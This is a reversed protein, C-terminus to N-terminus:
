PGSGLGSLLRKLQARQRPQRLIMLAIDPGGAAQLRAYLALSDAMRGLRACCAAAGLLAPGFGDLVTAAEMLLPDALAFDDDLLHCLGLGTVAYPRVAMDPNIALASRFCSGARATDGGALVAWGLWFHVYPMNPNITVARAIVAQATAIDGGAMVMAVAATGMAYPDDQGSAICARAAELARRNADDPVQAWGQAASIAECLALQARAWDDLPQRELVIRTLRLAELTADPRWQRILHNARWYLADISDEGAPMTAAWRREHREIRSEILMPARGLFTNRQPGAAAVEASLDASWLLESEHLDSLRLSLLPAARRSDTGVEILFRVGADLLARRRDAAAPPATAPGADHVRLNTNAAIARALADALAPAGDAPAVTDAIVTVSQRIRVERRAPADGPEQEPRRPDVHGAALDRAQDVLATVQQRQDRLWDEFGDAGPLDLGELLEGLDERPIPLGAAVAAQMDRLDVSLHRLEIEVNSRDTRLLEAAGAHQLAIRLNSLERRLSASAQEPERAGWLRDQLWARSRRGNRALALMAILAVGRRSSIRVIRGAPTALAFSGLLYLRYAM